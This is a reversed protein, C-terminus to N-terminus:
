SELDEAVVVVEKEEEVRDRKKGQQFKRKPIVSHLAQEWDRTETWKCLIEVVQNM